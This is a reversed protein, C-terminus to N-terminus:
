KEILIELIENARTNIQTYNLINIVFAITFLVSFIVFMAISIFKKRLAKEM